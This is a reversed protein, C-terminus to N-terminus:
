GVIHEDSLTCYWVIMSDPVRHLFLWEHESNNWAKKPVRIECRRALRRINRYQTMECGRRADIKWIVVDQYGSALRRRADRLATTWDSYVSIYVSPERSAWDLHDQIMQRTRSLQPDFSANSQNRSIIGSHEHYQAQSDKDQVRFFVSPNGELYSMIIKTDTNCFM